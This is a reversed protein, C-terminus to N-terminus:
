VFLVSIFQSAECGVAVAHLSSNRSIYSGYCYSEVFLVHHKVCPDRLAHVDSTQCVSLVSFM